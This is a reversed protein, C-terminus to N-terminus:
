ICFFKESLNKKFSKSVLFFPNIGSKLLEYWNSKLSFETSIEDLSIGDLEQNPRTFKSAFYILNNANNIFFNISILNLIFEYIKILALKFLSFNISAQSIELNIQFNRDFYYQIAEQQEKWFRNISLDSKLINIKEILDESISKFSLNSVECNFELSIKDIELKNEEILCFVKELYNIVIHNNFKDYFKNKSKYFESFEPDVKWESYLQSIDDLIPMLRDLNDSISHIKKELKEM